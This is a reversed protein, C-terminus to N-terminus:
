ADQEGRVKYTKRQEVEAERSLRLQIMQPEFHEKYDVLETELHTVYETISKDEPLVASDNEWALITDELTKNRAELQEKERALRDITNLYTEKIELLREIRNDKTQVERIWTKPAKAKEMREILPTKM